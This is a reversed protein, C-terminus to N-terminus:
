NQWKRSEIKLQGVLLFYYFRYWAGM